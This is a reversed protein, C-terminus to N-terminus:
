FSLVRDAQEMRQSLEASEVLTVPIILNHPDLGRKSLASEEAMVETVGYLELAPLAQAVSKLGIAEGTQDPQLHFVGDGTFALIVEQDFAAATLLLDLGGHSSSSGYPPQRFLFLISQKM